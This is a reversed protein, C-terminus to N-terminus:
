NGGFVVVIRVKESEVAEEYTLGDKKTVACSWLSTDLILNRDFLERFMFYLM